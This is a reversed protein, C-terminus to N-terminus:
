SAIPFEEKSDTEVQRVPLIQSYSLSGVAGIRVLETVVSQFSGEQAFFDCLNKVSGDQQVHKSRTQLWSSLIEARRLPEAEALHLFDSRLSEQAAIVLVFAQVFDPLPLHETLGEKHGSHGGRGGLLGKARHFLDRLRM